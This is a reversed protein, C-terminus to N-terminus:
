KSTLEYWFDTIFGRSDIEFIPKVLEPKGDACKWEYVTARGTVAAPINEAAPNAKCYDKMATTPTQSLDAKETCPINAGFHCVWVSKDMCRWVANQQIEKPADATVIGKEIMSQVLVEPMKEGTYQADPADISGVSACYAFPNSYSEAPNDRECTGNFYDAADCTKGNNFTCTGQEQGANSSTIAYKGGTIVCYQAADTIYGTIKAGGARCDGRLLAWEECQRNDEFLCVGYEGGDGRKKILVTGGQAVCNESAPNAIQSSSETPAAQPETTSDSQPLTPILQPMTTPAPQPAAASACGSLVAAICLVFM